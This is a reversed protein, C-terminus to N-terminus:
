QSIQQELSDQYLQNLRNMLTSINGGQMMFERIPAGARDQFYMHGAYRPRLFARDLTPLTNRFYNSLRANNSEDLWAERHGPQGGFNVYLKKQTNPLAVYAAYRAAWETHQCHVSIALGTGGLTTILNQGDISVTDHFTLLKRAFGEQSYNAYGYAFPSYVYDDSLTMAEYVQIPNWGFCERNIHRGLERLMTLAQG